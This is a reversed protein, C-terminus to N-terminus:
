KEKYEDFDTYYFFDGTNISSSLLSLICEGDDVIETVYLWPREDSLANKWEISNELGLNGRRIPNKSHPVVRMGCKIEYLKM